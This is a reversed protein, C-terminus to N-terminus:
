PRTPLSLQKSQSMASHGTAGDHPAIHLAISRDVYPIVVAYNVKRDVPAIKHALFIPAFVAVLAVALLAGNAKIEPRHSIVPWGPVTINTWDLNLTIYGAILLILNAFLLLVVRVFKLDYDANLRVHGTQQYQVLAWIVFSFLGLVVDTHIRLLSSFSVSIRKTVIGALVSIVTLFLPIFVPLYYEIKTALWDM